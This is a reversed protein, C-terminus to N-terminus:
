RGAYMLFPLHVIPNRQSSTPEATNDLEDTTDNPVAKSYIYSTYPKTRTQIRKYRISYKLLFFIQFEAANLSVPFNGFTDINLYICGQRMVCM